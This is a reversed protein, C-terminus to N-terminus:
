EDFIHDLDECDMFDFYASSSVHPVSVVSRDSDNTSMEQFIQRFLNLSLRRVSEENMAISAIAIRPSPIMIQKSCIKDSAASTNHYSYDYPDTNVHISVNRHHGWNPPTFSPEGNTQIEIMRRNIDNISHTQLSNRSKEPENCRKSSSSMISMSKSAKGKIKTRVM